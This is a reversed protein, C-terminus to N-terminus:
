SACELNASNMIQGLVKLEDPGFVKCGRRMARESGGPELLLVCHGFQPLKERDLSGECSICLREVAMQRDSGCTYIPSEVIRNLFASGSFYLANLCFIAAESLTQSCGEILIRKGLPVWPTHESCTLRIIMVPCRKRTPCLTCRSSPM